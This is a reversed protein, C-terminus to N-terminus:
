EAAPLLVVGVADHNGSFDGSVTVEVFPQGEIEVPEMTVSAEQAGEDFREDCGIISDSWYTGVGDEDVVLDVGVMAWGGDGEVNISLGFSTGGDWSDVYVTGYGDDQDFRGKEPLDGALSAGDFELWAMSGGDWTDVTGASLDFAPVQVSKMTPDPSYTREICGTGILLALLSVRRM